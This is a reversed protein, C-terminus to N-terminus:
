KLYLGDTSTEMQPLLISLFHSLLVQFTSFVSAFLFFPARLSVFSRTFAGPDGSVIYFSLSDFFNLPTRQTLTLSPQTRQSFSQFFPWNPDVGTEGRVHQIGRLAVVGLM